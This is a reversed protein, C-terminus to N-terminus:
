RRRADHHQLILRAARNQAKELRSKDFATLHSDYVTDCYDLHPQVYMKYIQLLIHRPLMSSIPYLPSLTRNFKLLVHSIHSKFRLDSSMTVGLHKHEDRVPIGIGDFLLGPISPVPKTTFTQQSTKNANFTIIWDDGYHKIHELDRQLTDQAVQISNTNHSAFLSSDDAFFLMENKTINSRGNLYLIALLPGLVSGQPVGASLGVPASTAHGIQVIQWRDSLYSRLWDLHRGRIGFETDCKALLGEHWIKEFYRSIDLYIITFDNGSDIARYLRDTLYALQLETSHGPRYGSQKPTLLSHCSIHSYIRASM